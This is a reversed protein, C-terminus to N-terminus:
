YDWTQTFIFCIRKKKKKQATYKHGYPWPQREDDIWARHGHHGHRMQPCHAEERHDNQKSQVTLYRSFHSSGLFLDQQILVPCLVWKLYEPEKWNTPRSHKIVDRTSRNGFERLCPQLRSSSRNAIQLMQQKIPSERTVSTHAACKKCWWWIVM